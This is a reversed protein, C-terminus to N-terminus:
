ENSAADKKRVAEIGQAVIHMVDTETLTDYAVDHEACWERFRQQSREYLSERAETQNMQALREDAREIAVLAEQLEEGELGSEILMRIYSERLWDAKELEKFRAIVTGAPSTMEVHGDKYVRVYGDFRENYVSAIVDGSPAVESLDTVRYANMEEGRWCNLSRFKVSNGKLLSDFQM